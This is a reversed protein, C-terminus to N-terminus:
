VVQSHKELARLARLSFVNITVSNTSDAKLARLFIERGKTGRGGVRKFWRGAGLAGLVNERGEPRGGSLFSLGGNAVGRTGICCCRKITAQMKMKMKMKMKTPRIAAKMAFKSQAIIIKDGIASTFTAWTSCLKFPLRRAVTANHFNTFHHLSTIPAIFLVISCNPLAVLMAITCQQLPASTCPAVICLITGHHLSAITRIIRHHFQAVVICHRLSAVICHSM